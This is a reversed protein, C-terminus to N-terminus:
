AQEEDQGAALTQPTGNASVEALRTNVQEENMGEVKELYVKLSSKGALGAKVAMSFPNNM